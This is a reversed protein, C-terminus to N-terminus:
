SVTVYCTSMDMFALREKLGGRKLHPPAFPSAKLDTSKQFVLFFKFLLLQSFVTTLINQALIIETIFCFLNTQFVKPYVKDGANTYM